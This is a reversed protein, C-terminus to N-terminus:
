SRNAVPPRQRVGLEELGSEKGVRPKGEADVNGDVAARPSRGGRVIQAEIPVHARPESAPRFDMDGLGSRSLNIQVHSPLLPPHGLRGLCAHIPQDAQGRLGRQGFLCALVCHLVLLQKRRGHLTPGHGRGREIGGPDDGTLGLFTEQFEVPLCGVLAEQQVLKESPGAAALHTQVFV